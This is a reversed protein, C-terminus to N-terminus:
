SAFAPSMQQKTAINQLFIGDCYELFRELKAPQSRYGIYGDPRILYLSHESAGYRRHLEGEDDHVLLVQGDTEFPFESKMTVVVTDILNGYKQKVLNHKQKFTREFDPDSYNGTFILLKHTTGRLIEFLRKEVGKSNFTIDPAREGAHAAEGFDRWQKFEAIEKIPKGTLLPLERHEDVIPSNRYNITLMASRKDMRQQIPELELLLSVLRNRIKRSVPNRLLMMKFGADTTEVQEKLLPYRETNYSDLLKPKALGRYVLALKWALNYADQIGSNMGQGGAPSHLHAADGAFFINDYRFREIIRRHIRFRSIWKPKHLKLNPIPNLIDVMEKLEDLTPEESNAESSISKEQMDWPVEIMIRWMGEEKLSAILVLGQDTFYGHWEDEAPPNSWELELDALLFESEFTEGDLKAGIAKRCFSRGGDCAILYKPEIAEIEGNSHQLEVKLEENDQQLEIIQTNWEVELGLSNLHNELSSETDSQPYLMIYPYPTDLEGSSVQAIRKGEAYFSFGSVLHGTDLVEKILGMDEFIEMTRSQLILAKTKDTIGPKKDIIRCPIGHRTLEAAMTLGTPGAGVILITNNDITM